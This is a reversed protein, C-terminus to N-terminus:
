RLAAALLNVVNRSAIVETEMTSIGSEMANVYYLGPHLVFGPWEKVPHLVPYAQWVLRETQVRDRFLRALLEEDLEARSFLKYITHPSASAPGLSGLLSFPVEPSERTLIVAPVQEVQQLGFYAPNVTGVVFTVHTVQYPRARLAWDPPRFGALRLNAVELPTAVIVADFTDARGDATTVQYRPRDGEDVAAIAAVTAGPHVTAGAERLLGDCLRSNGERVSFLYGGMAAGALSILNVLAHISADQGYNARSIGDVMERLFRESIGHRRFYAASPQQSLHYLDLFTFLDQPRAFAQGQELVDYVRVLRDITRRVLRQARLPALRYRRITRLLTTRRSPSTVFDFGAGNWVGQSRAPPRDAHLGLMAVFQVLYRNASHAISAGAAVRRGALEVERIRGGVGSRDWVVIEVRDGLVQRVFYAASSGAIGAGVIGVRLNVPSDEM